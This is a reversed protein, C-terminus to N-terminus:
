KKAGFHSTLSAIAKASFILADTKVFDFPTWKDQTLLDVNHINRASKSLAADEGRELVVPLPHYNHAGHKEELDLYYQTKESMNITTEM